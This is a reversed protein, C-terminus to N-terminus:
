NIVKVLDGTKLLYNGEVAIRKNELENGILTIHNDDFDLYKVPTFEVRNDPQIVFIGMVGDINTISQRPLLLEPKAQINILINVIKGPKPAKLEGPALTFIAAIGGFKGSKEGIETLKIHYNDGHGFETSMTADIGFKLYNAQEPNVKAEIKVSSGGIIECVPTGAGSTNGKSVFLQNIVGNVPAKIIYDNLRKGLSNMKTQAGELQLSLQELQQQTVAEVGALDAYRNYDKQLQEYAKKAIEFEQLAYFDDIQAIIDGKKVNEGIKVSVAKIEGPTQSVVIVEDTSKVKGVTELIYSASDVKLYFVTVPISDIVTKAKDVEFQVTKKNNRLVVTLWVILLLLVIIRFINKMFKMKESTLWDNL